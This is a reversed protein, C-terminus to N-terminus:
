VLEAAASLYPIEAPISTADTEMLRPLSLLPAYYDYPPLPDGDAVVLDIGEVTSLIRTLPRPCRIHVTVGPRKLRNAYRIFQLSDGFGQEAVLLISRGTLPEGEWQRKPLHGRFFRKCKWRWEYQPWGRAFDGVALLMTGLGAHLEANEPDVMLGREYCSQAQDFEGGRNAIAGLNVRM